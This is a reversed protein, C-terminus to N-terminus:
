RRRIILIPRKTRRVVKGSVSGLMAEKIMSKGHSGIVILGVDEQNAILEIERFPVGERIVIKVNPIGGELLTTKIDSLRGTDIDQFEPLRDLLHPAIKTMDQVHVVIIEKTGCSKFHLLYPIVSKSCISFDTPFLIKEFPNKHREFCTIDEKLYRVDFKEVLLPVTAHRLVNETTSGLLMEEVLSKGHSGMIILSSAEAKATAVIQHFPIGVEVRTEVNLGLNNKLKKSLTNIKENADTELTKLLEATAVPLQALLRKDIVHLLLVEEIGIPKLKTMNEMIANCYPSFDTPYLVKKFM